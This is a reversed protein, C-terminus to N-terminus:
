IMLCDTRSTKKACEELWKEFNFNVLIENKNEKSDLWKEANKYCVEALVDKNAMCGQLYVEYYSLKESVEGSQSALVPNLWFFATLFIHIMTLKNM